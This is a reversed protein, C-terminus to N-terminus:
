PSLLGRILTIARYARGEIEGRNECLMRSMEGGNNIGMNVAVPSVYDLEKLLSDIKMYAINLSSRRINSPANESLDTVYGSVALLPVSGIGKIYGKILDLSHLEIVGRKDGAEFNLRPVDNLYVITGPWVGVGFMSHIDVNAKEHREGSVSMRVFADGCRLITGPLNELRGLEECSGGEVANKYARYRAQAAQISDGGIMDYLGKLEEYLRLLWANRGSGECGM